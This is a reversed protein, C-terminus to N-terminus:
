YAYSEQRGRTFGTLVESHKGTHPFLNRIQFHPYSLFMDKDTRSIKDLQIHGKYM